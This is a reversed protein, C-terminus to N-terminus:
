CTQHTPHHYNEKSKLPPPLPSYESAVGLETSQSSSKPDLILGLVKCICPLHGAVSGGGEAGQSPNEGFLSGQGQWAKLRIVLVPSHVTSALSALLHWLLSAPEIWLYSSLPVFHSVELVKLGALQVSACAPLGSVFTTQPSLQSFHICVM